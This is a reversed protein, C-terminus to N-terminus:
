QVYVTPVLRVQAVEGSRGIGDEAHRDGMPVVSRHHNLTRQTQQMVASQSDRHLLLLLHHSLM